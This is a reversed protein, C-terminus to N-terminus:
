LTTATATITATYTGSNIYFNDQEVAYCLNSDAGTPTTTSNHIAIVYDSTTFGRYKLTANPTSTAASCSSGSGWTGTSVDVGYVSYGFGATGPVVNWLAPVGTQYDPILATSSAQMAPLTSARVALSYGLNNNTKVNWTSTAVATNAAIGLNTSMSTNPADTIAIGATVNLTVIVQDTATAAVVMEPELGIYGFTLLMSAIVTTSIVNIFTKMLNSAALLSLWALDNRYSVRV